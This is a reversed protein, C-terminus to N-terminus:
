AQSPLDPLDQEAISQLGAVAARAVNPAVDLEELLASSAEMEEIRRTAHTKSGAILRRMFSEDAETMQHVLDSWTADSIGLAEAARMSEVLAAALGKTVVSRVLKHAAAHGPGGELQRITPLGLLEAFRGAGDGSVLMPTRIGAAPVVGMLAVDAFARGSLVQAIERKVAPAATAFDAYVAGAPIEEAAQRAAVLADSAATVSIVLRAGQVADVPSGCRVIGTPTEVQAPDFGRVSFGLEVLGPAIASGAEGLGFLCVATM